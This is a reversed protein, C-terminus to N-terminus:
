RRTLLTHSFSWHLASRKGELNMGAQLCKRFRCAPCNKRRIKDIICDNRGACLYNHQGPPPPPPLLPPPPPPFPFFNLCLLHLQDHNQNPCWDVENHHLTQTCPYNESSHPRPSYTGPLVEWSRCTWPSWVSQSCNLVGRALLVALVSKVHCLQAM